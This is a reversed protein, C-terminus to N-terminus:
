NDNTTLAHAAYSASSHFKINSLRGKIVYEKILEM